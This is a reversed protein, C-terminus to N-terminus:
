QIQPTSDLQTESNSRVFMQLCRCVDTGQLDPDHGRGDEVDGETCIECSKEQQESVQLCLNLGKRLYTYIKKFSM